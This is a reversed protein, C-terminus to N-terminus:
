FCITKLSCSLRIYLEQVDCHFCEIDSPHQRYINKRINSCFCVQKDAYSEITIMPMVCYADSM